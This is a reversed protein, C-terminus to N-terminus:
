SFDFDTWFLSVSSVFDNKFSKLQLEPGILFDPILHFGAVVKGSLRDIFEPSKMLLDDM